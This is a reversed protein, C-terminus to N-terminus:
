PVEVSTMRGWSCGTKMRVTLPVRLKVCNQMIKAAIGQFHPLFDCRVEFLLEDHIQMVLRVNEKFKSSYLEEDIKVMALKVIGAASGQFVTNVAKREARLREAREPSKIKPLLRKHGFLTLVFGHKKCSSKIQDLYPKVQPYADDFKKKFELCREASVQMEDALREIGSGYLLGYLMRKAHDRQTSSVSKTECEYIQAAVERLIDCDENFKSILRPEKSLHAILRLEIQSYDISLLVFDNSAVFADRVSFVIDGRPVSSGQLSLQRGTQNSNSCDVRPRKQLLVGRDTKNCDVFASYRWVKDAPYSYVLRRDGAFLKVQVQRIGQENDKGIGVLIGRDYKEPSQASPILVRMDSELAIADAPRSQKRFGATSRNQLKPGKGDQKDM